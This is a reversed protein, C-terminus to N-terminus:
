ECVFEEIQHQSGLKSYPGFVNGFSDVEYGNPIKVVQGKIKKARNRAHGLSKYEKVCWSLSGFHAWERWKFDQCLRYKGRIVLFM